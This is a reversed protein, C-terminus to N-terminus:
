LLSRVLMQGPHQPPPEPVLKRDPNTSAVFSERKGDGLNEMFAWGLLLLCPFEPPPLPAAEPDRVEAGRREFGRRWLELPSFFTTVNSIESNTDPQERLVVVVAALM